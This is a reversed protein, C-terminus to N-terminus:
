EQNEMFPDFLSQEPFLMGWFDQGALWDQASDMQDLSPLGPDLAAFLETTPCYEAQLSLLITRGKEAEMWTQGLRSM